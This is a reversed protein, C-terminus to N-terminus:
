NELEELDRVENCYAIRKLWFCCWMMSHDIVNCDILVEQIKDPWYGIGMAQYM